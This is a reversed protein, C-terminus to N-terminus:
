LRWCRVGADALARRDFVGKVDVVLPTAKMLSCLDAVM